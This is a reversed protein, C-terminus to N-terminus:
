ESKFIDCKEFFYVITRESHFKNIDKSSGKFILSFEEVCKKYVLVEDDEQLAQKSYIDIVKNKIIESSKEDGNNVLINIADDIVYGESIFKEIIAKKSGLNNINIKKSASIHKYNFNTDNIRSSSLIIQESINKFFDVFLSSESTRKLLDEDISYSINFDISLREIAEDTLGKELEDLLDDPRIITYNFDYKYINKLDKAIKDFTRDPDPPLQEDRMNVIFVFSSIDGGWKSNKIHELLKELDGKFKEDVDKKIGAKDLIPAYMAYFIKDEVVWGDNAFDGRFASSPSEFTKDLCSYYQKLIKSCDEQFNLRSLGHLHKILNEVLHRKDRRSYNKM